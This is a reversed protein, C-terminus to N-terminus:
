IPFDFCVLTCRSYICKLTKKTSKLINNQFCVLTSRIIRLEEFFFPASTICHSGTAHRGLMNKWKKSFCYSRTIRHRKMTQIGRTRRGHLPEGFFIESIDYGCLNAVKKEVKSFTKHSLNCACSESILLNTRAFIGPDVTTKVPSVIFFKIIM